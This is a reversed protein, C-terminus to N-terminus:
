RAGIAFWAWICAVAVVTAGCLALTGFTEIFITVARRFGLSRGEHGLGLRMIAAMLAIAGFLPLGYIFYMVIISV